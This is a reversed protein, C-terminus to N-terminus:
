TIVVVPSGFCMKFKLKLQMSFLVGEFGVVVSSTRRVAVNFQLVSNCCLIAVCFQMACWPVGEFGVVVSTRCCRIACLIACLIAVCFQLVSNCQLHSGKLDSSTRCCRIACLIACEEFGVVVSSPRCCRIACATVPCARRSYQRKAAIWGANRRM